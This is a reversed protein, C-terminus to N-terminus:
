PCNRTLLLPLLVCVLPYHYAPPTSINLYQAIHFPEEPFTHAIIYYIQQESSNQLAPRSVNWNSRDAGTGSRNADHPRGTSHKWVEPGARTFHRGMDNWLSWTHTQSYVSYTLFHCHLVPFFVPL